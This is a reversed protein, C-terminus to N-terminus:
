FTIMLLPVFDPNEHESRSSNVNLTPIDSNEYIEMFKDAYSQTGVLYMDQRDTITATEDKPFVALTLVKDSSVAQKQLPTTHANTFTSAEQCGCLTLATMIAIVGIMVKVNSNTQNQQNTRQNKMAEDGNPTKERREWNFAFL